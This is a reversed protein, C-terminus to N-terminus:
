ARDPRKSKNLINNILSLTVHIRNKTFAAQAPNLKTNHAKLRKPITPLTTSLNQISSTFGWLELRQRQILRTGEEPSFAFEAQRQHAILQPHIEAM